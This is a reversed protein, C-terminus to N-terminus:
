SRITRGRHSASTLPEGAQQWAAWEHPQVSPPGLHYGQGVTIGLGTMTALEAGTEVRQASLTAGIRRAFGLQAAVLEQRLSDQDIGATLAPDLKIMEPRLRLVHRVSSLDTGAQDISLRVGARRLPAVAADLPGAQDAAFRDSLELVMRDPALSCQGILVPLRDDLCAVHSLKLAVFLNPPLDRSATLASELAAFELDTGLGTDEAEAFWDVAPDAGDSVFRTLAEAGIVSGTLLDYVPQFATMLMRGRLVAELRSRGVRQGSGSCRDGAQSSQEGSVANSAGKDITGALEPRLVSLHELLAREPRGPHAAVRQRLQERVAAAAVSSDALVEDVIEQAQGRLGTWGDGAKPKLAEPALHEGAEREARFSPNQPSM